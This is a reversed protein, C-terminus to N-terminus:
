SRGAQSFWSERYREQGRMGQPSDGVDRVVRLDYANVAPIHLNPQRVVRRLPSRWGYCSACIIVLGVRRDKRVMAEIAAM